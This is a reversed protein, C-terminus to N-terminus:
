LFLLAFGIITFITGAIKYKKSLGLNVRKFHRMGLFNTNFM